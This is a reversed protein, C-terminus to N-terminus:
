NITILDCWAFENFQNTLDERIITKIGKRVLLSVEDGIKNVRDHRYINYDDAILENDLINDKLWTKSIGTVDPLEAEILLQLEDLKNVISRMNFYVCKLKNAVYNSPEVHNSAKINNALITQINNSIQIVKQGHLLM